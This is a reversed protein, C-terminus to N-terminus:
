STTSSHRSTCGALWKQSETLSAFAPMSCISAVSAEPSAKKADRVFGALKVANCTDPPSTVKPEVVSCADQCSANAFSLGGAPGCYESVLKEFEAANTAADAKSAITNREATTLSWSGSSLTVCANGGWYTGPACLPKCEGEGNVFSKPPCPARAISKCTGDNQVYHGPSCPAAPLAKCAGDKEVYEGAACPPGNLAKCTGNKQVYNGPSCPAAPLPECVGDLKLFSGLPCDVCTGNSAAYDGPKCPPNTPLPACERENSQTVRVYEGPQCQGDTLTQITRYYGLNTKKLAAVQTQQSAQTHQLSRKAAHLAANESNQSALQTKQSRKTAELASIESKQSTNSAELASIESEQLHIQRRLAGGM